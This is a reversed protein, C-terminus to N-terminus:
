TYLTHNGTIHTIYRHSYLARPVVYQGATDLHNLTITCHSYKTGPARRLHTHLNRFHLAGDYRTINNTSYHVTSDQWKMIKIHM